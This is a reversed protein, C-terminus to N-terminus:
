HRGTAPPLRHLLARVADAHGLQKLAGAYVQVMNQAQRASTVLAVRTIGLPLAEIVAQRLVSADEPTTPNLNDLDLRPDDTSLVLLVAIERPESM